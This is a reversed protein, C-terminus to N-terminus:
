RLDAIQPHFKVPDFTVVRYDALAHIQFPDQALIADLEDRSVKGSVIIVGGNRPQKPGSAIFLGRAYQTDLFQRHAELQADIASASQVYTLEVIYM